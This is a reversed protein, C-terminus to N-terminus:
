KNLFVVMDILFTKLLDNDEQNNFHFKAVM